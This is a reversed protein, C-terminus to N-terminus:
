DYVRDYTYSVYTPKTSNAKIEEIVIEGKDLNVRVIEKCNKEKELNIMPRCRIAVKIWESPGSM